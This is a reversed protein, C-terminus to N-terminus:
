LFFYCLLLNMNVFENYYNLVFHVAENVKKGNVNTLASFFIIFLGVALM